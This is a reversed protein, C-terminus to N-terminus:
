RVTKVDLRDAAARVWGAAFEQGPWIRGQRAYNTLSFRLWGPGQDHVRYGRLGDAAEALTGQWQVFIDHPLDDPADGEQRLIIDAQGSSGKQAHASWGRKLPKASVIKQLTQAPWNLRDSSVPLRYWIVSIMGAPAHRRWEDMLLGLAFADSDLVVGRKGGLVFGAPLDEGFVESVKDAEDFLVVCSYTPLAVRFPVGLGAARSVAERAETENILTAARGQYPLHLSHVQLVYGPSQSLLMRAEPRKLWSPLATVRIPIDPLGIKLTSLLGAYDALKSEPCDYDIQIEDPPRSRATWHATMETALVVVAHCADEAWGTGAASAHIRLVLGVRGPYSKLASWEPEFKEIKPVGAKFRIEAALFHLADLPSAAAVAQSVEPTWVRQWVFAESTLPQTRIAQKEADCGALLCLLMSWLPLSRILSVAM